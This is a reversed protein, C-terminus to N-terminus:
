QQQFLKRIKHRTEIQNIIGTVDADIRQQEEVEAIISDVEMMVKKNIYHDVIQQPTNEEANKREDDKSDEDGAHQAPEDRDMEVEDEEGTAADKAHAKSKAKAKAKVQSTNKHEELLQLLKHTPISTALFAAKDSKQGKCQLGESQLISNLVRVSTSPGAMMTAVQIQDPLPQTHQEIAELVADKTEKIIRDAEATIHKRTKEHEQEMKEFIERNKGRPKFSRDGTELAKNARLRFQQEATLVM